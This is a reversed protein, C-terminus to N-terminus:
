HFFVLLLIGVATISIGLFERGNHKEKLYFQSVLVAFIMEIQGAAKVYIVNGMSFAIFWSLSGLFSLVSTKVFSVKNEASFLKKLDSKFRGQSSKIILFLINQIVIVWMLVTAPSTFSGYGLDHLNEAAFKLHFATISFLFGTLLGFLVAPQSFSFNSFGRKFRINSMLFVGFTTILIIVFGTVSIFQNFFIYGMILAQMVETKYFAIGVSFNKSQFTKLLTFNGAVQLIGTVACHFIFQGGVSPLTLFVVVLAIPLPLIFRSWSVTLTDLKQNLKKQELNRFTQLTAGILTYLIWSM